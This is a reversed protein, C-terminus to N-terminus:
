SILKKTATMGYIHQIYEQINGQVMLRLAEKKKNISQIKKTKMLITKITTLQIEVIM